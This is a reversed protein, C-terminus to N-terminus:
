VGIRNNANPYKITEPAEGPEIDLVRVPEEISIGNRIQFSKVVPEAGALSVIIYSIGPDAALKIDEVSPRSPTAPHSHYVASLRRGERRMVRVCEFQEKPFLSFHEASADKNTLPYWADITGNRAACYGCAELPADKRAHAIIGEVVKKDITIM